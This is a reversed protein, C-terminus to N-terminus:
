PIGPVKTGYAVDVMVPVLDQRIGTQNCITNAPMTRMQEGNRGSVGRYALM